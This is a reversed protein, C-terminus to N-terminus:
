MLVRGYGNIQRYLVRQNYKPEVMEAIRDAFPSGRTPLKKYATLVDRTLPHALLDALQLGAINLEKKKLKPKRSTLTKQARAATLYGARGGGHVYFREYEQEFLNDERGGRSEVLLDGRAGSFDLWGCYRELLGLLAYHYPHKLTWYTARGMKLKDVVVTIIRMEVAALVALFHADFAERKDRDSLVSFPGRRNLIDERHLIPPDDRDYRLHDRKFQEVIEVAEDYPRNREIIVGCLGLYRQGIPDGDNGCPRHDGAEDVYIRYEPM